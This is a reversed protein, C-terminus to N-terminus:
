LHLVLGTSITPQFQTDSNFHTILVRVQIPRLVLHRTLRLDLGGGISLAFSTAPAPSIQGVVEGIDPPISVTQSLHAAGVLAQAFPALRKKSSIQPGFLYTYLHQRNNLTSLSDEGSYNISTVLGSTGYLGTIDAVARLGHGIPVAASAQWGNLNGSSGTYAYPLPCNTGPCIFLGSGSATLNTNAYAYGGSLEFHQPTQALCCSALLFAGAALHASRLSGIRTSFM